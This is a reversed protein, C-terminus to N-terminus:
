ANDRSNGKTSAKDMFAAADVLFRVHSAEGIQEAEDWAQIRFNLKSGQVDVLEAYARVQMGVPTAALHRLDIQGGVTTQGPPLHGDLARVATSEMLAVLAPTAYVPMSGSGLHAATKNESVTIEVEASLGPTLTVDSRSGTSM